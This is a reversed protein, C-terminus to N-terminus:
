LARARIERTIVRRKRVVRGLAIAAGVTLGGTLMGVVMPATEGGSAVTGWTLGATVLALGSMVLALRGVRYTSRQEEMRRVWAAHRIERRHQMLLEDVVLRLGAIDLHLKDLRHM